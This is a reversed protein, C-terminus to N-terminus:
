VPNRPPARPWAAGPRAVAAGATSEIRIAYAVRDAQAAPLPPAGPVAAPQQVCCALCHAAHAQRAPAPAGDIRVLRVGSASCVEAVQAPAAGAYRWAPAFVALLWTCCVLCAIWARHRRCADM